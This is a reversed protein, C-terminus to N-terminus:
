FPVTPDWNNLKHYFFVYNQFVQEPDAPTCCKCLAMAGIVAEKNPAETAGSVTYTAGQAPASYAEPPPTPPQNQMAQQMAADAPTAAVETYENIWYPITGDPFAKGPSPEFNISHGVMGPGTAGPEFEWNKTTFWRDGVKVSLTAGSKSRKVTEIRGQM